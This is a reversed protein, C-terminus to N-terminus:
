KIVFETFYISRVQGTVLFRNIRATIEDRLKFKGEVTYIDKFTKSSLLILISDKIKPLNATIENSLATNSMELEITLKLFRKGGEGSLNLIFSQLPFMAGTGTDDSDSETKQKEEKVTEEGVGIAPAIFKFWAFVGGGGLIALVAVIIIILKLKGGKKPAEELIDEDEKEEEEAM